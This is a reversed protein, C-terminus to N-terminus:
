RRDPPRLYLNMGGVDVIAFNWSLYEEGLLGAGVMKAVNAVVVEANSITLNGLALQQVHGIGEGRRSLQPSLSTGSAAAVPASILTTFAGTDVILRVPHGNIAADIELHHGPNFHMPIRTFGRGSLFQALRQAAAASPGKPNVYIMQRACDVIMGFKAMEHAGFLGDLHPRSILNIESEDAVQVPVNTFTCNGMALTALQSVGYRQAAGTVGSVYSKTERVGLGLKRISARDILTFPCGSDIMLATRQGNMVTTVFLHNGFRRQLPSGGFGERELFTKLAAPQSSSGKEAAGSLTPLLGIAIICFTRPINMLRRE